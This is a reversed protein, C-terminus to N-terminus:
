ILQYEALSCIKILLNKLMNAVANKQNANGPDNVYKNWEVTWEFDPLGPILTDKLEAIQETTAPLPFLLNTLTSILDNIDEPKNALYAVKFPDIYQKEFGSVPRVGSKIVSVVYASKYPVTVSNIWLQNFAPALYWAPWGAVDPPNALRLTQQKAQEYIWYWMGYQAVLNESGPDKYELQRLMGVTFELPNKITCGRFNEDFFHESSLLMKLVPKIEFNNEVFLTALPEIIQSEINDDIRYYVFWRYLKRILYRATEKKAFIMNILDKYENEGNNVITQFEFLDSFVKTTKDHKSLDFYSANNTNSTRWGTLVKAAERIDLETFNTYNGESVLPGKGITFLEFLERAYNENPKGSVNEAGNLYKLMGANLTIEETLIKFNGLAQNYLLNCYQYNFNVNSVVDKEIVFHNHWFLGMKEKLSLEQNLLRGLWWRTYSTQRPEKFDSNYILNVWTEGIAVETDSESISLPPALQEVPETLLFDLAEEASKTQMFQIETHRAGFLCRNLLHKANQYGLVGTKPILSLVGSKLRVESNEM